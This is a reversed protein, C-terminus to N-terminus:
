IHDEQTDFGFRHLREKIFRRSRMCNNSIFFINKGEKKLNNLAEFSGSIRQNSSNWLVGDCDFFFNDYKGIVDSFLCRKFLKNM